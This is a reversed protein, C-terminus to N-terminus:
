NALVSNCGCNGYSCSGYGAYGVWRGMTDLLTRTQAENSLATKMDSLDTQLQNIYNQQIMDRTKQNEEIVTTKVDCCCAAMQSNVNQFGLQSVFKNDLVQTNVGNIANLINFNGNQVDNALTQNNLAAYLDQQRVLDGNNYGNNYGNDNKGFIAWIFIFLIILFGAGGFAGDNKSGGLMAMVDSASVGSGSEAM